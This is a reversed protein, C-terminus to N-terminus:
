EIPQKEPTQFPSGQVKLISPVGLVLFPVVLMVPQGLSNFAVQKDRMSREPQTVRRWM